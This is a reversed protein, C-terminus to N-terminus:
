SALSSATARIKETLAPAKPQSARLFELVQQQTSQDATKWESIIQQIIEMGSAGQHAPSTIIEHVIPYLFAKVDAAFSIMFAEEREDMSKAANSIVTPVIRAKAQLGQATTAPTTSITHLLADIQRQHREGLKEAFKSDTPDANFGADFAGSAQAYLVCERILATDNPARPKATPKCKFKQTAKAMPEM